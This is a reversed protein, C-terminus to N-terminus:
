KYKLYGLKGARSYYFRKLIFDKRRFPFIIEGCIFRNNKTLILHSFINVKLIWIKSIINSFNRLHINM